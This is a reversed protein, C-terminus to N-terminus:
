PYICTEGLNSLNQPFFIAPYRLPRKCPTKSIKTRKTTPKQPSTTTIQTASTTNQCDSKSTFFIRWSKTIIKRSEARIPHITRSSGADKGKHGVPLAFGFASSRVLVLDALRTPARKLPPLLPLPVPIHDLVAAILAPPVLRPLRVSLQLRRNKLQQRLAPPILRYTRRLRRLRHTPQRAAPVPLAQHFRCSSRRSAQNRCPLDNHCLTSM